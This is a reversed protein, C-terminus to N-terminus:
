KRKRSCLYLSKRVYVFLFCFIKCVFLSILAMVNPTLRGSTEIIPVAPKAVM